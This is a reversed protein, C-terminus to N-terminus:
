CGGQFEKLLIRGFAIIKQAVLSLVHICRKVCSVFCADITHLCEDDGTLVFDVLTGRDAPLTRAVTKKSQLPTPQVSSIYFPVVM